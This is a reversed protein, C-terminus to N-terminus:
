DVLPEFRPNFLHKFQPDDLPVAALPKVQSQPCPQPCPLCLTQCASLYWARPRRAGGCWVGVCGSIRKTTLQANPSQLWVSATFARGGQGGELGRWGRAGWASGSAQQARLQEGRAGGEEQVGGEEQRAEQSWWLISGPVVPPHPPIRRPPSPNKEYFCFVSGKTNYQKEGEEREGRGGEGEEEGM